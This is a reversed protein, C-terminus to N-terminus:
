LIHGERVCARVRVHVRVYAGARVALARVCLSVHERAPEPGPEPGPEPAPADALRPAAAPFRPEPTGPPRYVRVYYVDTTRGQSNDGRVCERVRARDTWTCVSVPVVQRSVLVRLSVPERARLSLGLGLGLSLHQPPLQRRHVRERASPLRLRAEELAQRVRVRRQRILDAVRQYSYVAHNTEGAAVKPRLARNGNQELLCAIV